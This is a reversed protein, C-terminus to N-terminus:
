ALTRISRALMLICYGSTSRSWVRGEKEVMCLEHGTGAGGQKDIGLLTASQVRSMGDGGVAQSSGVSAASSLAHPAALRLLSSSDLMSTASQSHNLRQAAEAAPPPLGGDPVGRRPSIARDPSV